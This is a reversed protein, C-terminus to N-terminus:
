SSLCAKESRGVVLPKEQSRSTTAKSTQILGSVRLSQEMEKTSLIPLAAIWPTYDYPDQNEETDWRRQIEEPDEPLDDDGWGQMNSDDHNSIGTSPFTGTADDWGNQNQETAM